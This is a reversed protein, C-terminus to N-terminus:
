RTGEISSDLVLCGGRAGVAPIHVRIRIEGDRFFRAPDSLDFSTLKESQPKWANAQWDFVESVVRAPPQGEVQPYIVAKTVALDRAAQPLRLTATITDSDIVTGSGWQTMCLNNTGNATYEPWLLGRPFAVSDAYSLEIPTEVLVRQQTQLRQEGTSINLPSTDLWGIALPAATRTTPAYSYLSDLLQVPIRLDPPPGSQPSWRDKFIAMAMSMGSHGMNNLPFEVDKSKGPALDGVALARSGYIIAVDRIVTDGDNRVVGRVMRKGLELNAALTKFPLRTEAAFMTMSWQAVPLAKVGGLSYRGNSVAQAAQGGWMGDIQLPRTLADGDVTVDYTRDAPSFIGTFTRIRARDGLPQIFSIENVVVDSGRISLGYGYTGLAFVITIAPILLWALAQRDLRRLVLFLGPGILLIYVILAIGLVNLSPLSLVPLNYLAQVFQQEQITDFSMDGQFNPDVVRIQLLSSWMSTDRPLKQLALDSLSWGLLNIRGRGWQRQITMEDLARSTGTPTITAAKFPVDAGLESLVTNTVDRDALTGATGIQFIPPLTAAAAPNQGVSIVMQGGSQVWDDLAAIQESALGEFAREDLVLADFMALGEARAPIDHKDVIQPTQRIQARPVHLPAALPQEMILGILLSSTGVMTVNLSDSAIEQGGDLLHATITRTFGQARVYMVLSKRAGRPLEVPADFTGSTNTSLRIMANRDSGDNAVTVHVPVWYGTKATGGYFASIEISATSNQRAFAPTLTCGILLVLATLHRLLMSVEVYMDYAFVDPAACPQM